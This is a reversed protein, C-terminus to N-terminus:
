PKLLYDYVGLNLKVIEPIRAPNWLDGRIVLRLHDYYEALKKNQIQNTGSQLTEEYGAPPERWYHGVRWNHPMMPLRATLSDGLAGRDYVYVKPGAYYPIMGVPMLDAFTKGSDRLKM